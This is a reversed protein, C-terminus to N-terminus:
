NLLILFYMCVGVCMCIVFWLNLSIYLVVISLYKMYDTVIFLIFFFSVLFIFYLVENKEGDVDNDSEEVDEIGLYLLCYKFCM